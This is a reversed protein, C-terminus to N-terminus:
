FQGHFFDTGEHVLAVQWPFDEISVVDGGLIREAPRQGSEDQAASPAGIAAALALACLPRAMRTRMTM